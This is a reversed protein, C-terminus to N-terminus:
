YPAVPQQYNQQPVIAPTYNAAAATSASIGSTNQAGLLQGLTVGQGLANAGGTIAGNLANASGVIGSATANAGGIIDSGYQNAGTLNINALNNAGSQLNSNLNSAANEGLQSTGATFNYLNNQAQNYLNANTTYANLANNYTNQYNTSAVGQAYNTLNKATGTSLLGGSAAASNQLAQLGQQLQFQYGPTAQAQAATPATFQGNQGAYSQTLQGGPAVYGSLSNVAGQGAQVFPTQNATQQQTAQQQQQTSTQVAQQENAAAKQAAQSQVNAANSAAKAGLIGSLISGGASIAGGALGIPM